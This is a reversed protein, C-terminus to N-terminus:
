LLGCNLIFPNIEPTEWKSHKPGPRTYAFDHTPSVEMHGLVARKRPPAWVPARAHSNTRVNGAPPALLKGARRRCAPFATRTPVTRWARVVLKRCARTAM